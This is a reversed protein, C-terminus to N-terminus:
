SQIIFATTTKRTSTSNPKPIMIISEQNSESEGV